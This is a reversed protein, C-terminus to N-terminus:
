VTTAAATAPLCNGGDTNSTCVHFAGAASLLATTTSTPTVTWSASSVSPYSLGSVKSGITLTLTKNGNSWASAGAFRADAGLTGGALSGLTTTELTTCLGTATTTALVMTNTVPDTCVTDTSSPGTAPDVAQNFHVVLQDGCDLVGAQSHVQEGTGSCGSTNGANKISITAAVYGLQV